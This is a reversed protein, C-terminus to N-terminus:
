NFERVGNMKIMWKFCLASEYAMASRGHPSFIEVMKSDLINRLASTERPRICEYIPRLTFYFHEIAICITRGNAYRALFSM